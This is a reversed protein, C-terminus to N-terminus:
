KLEKGNLPDVKFKRIIVYDFHEVTIPSGGNYLTARFKVYGGVTTIIQLHNKNLSYSPIASPSESKIILTDTIVNGALKYSTIVRYDCRDLPSCSVM